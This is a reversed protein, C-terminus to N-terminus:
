PHDVHILWTTTTMVSFHLAHLFSFMLKVLIIILHLMLKLLIILHLVLRIMRAWKDTRHHCSAKRGRDLARSCVQLLSAAQCLTAFHQLINQSMKCSHRLINCSHRTSTVLSAAPLSAFHWLDQLHTQTFVFVVCKRPPYFNTERIAGRLFLHLMTCSQAPWPCQPCARPLCLHAPPSVRGRHPRPHTPPPPPPPHPPPTLLPSGGGVTLGQQRGQWFITMLDHHDNISFVLVSVMVNKWESARDRCDGANCYATKNRCETIAFHKAKVWGVGCYLTVIERSQSQWILAVKLANWVISVVPAAFYCICVCVILVSFLSCCHRKFIYSHM